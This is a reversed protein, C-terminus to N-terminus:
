KTELSDLLNVEAEQSWKILFVHDLFPTASEAADNNVPVLNHLEINGAVFLNRM